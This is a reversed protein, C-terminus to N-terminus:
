AFYKICIKPEDWIMCYFVQFAAEMAAFSQLSFGDIGYDYKLEKIRNECDARQNYRRHLSAASGGTNTVYAKYDYRQWDAKSEFLFGQTKIPHKDAGERPTRVVIIRRAKHWSAAQYYFEQYCANPQVDDCAYWDTLQTIADRMRATMRARIIYPVEQEDKSGELETRLM